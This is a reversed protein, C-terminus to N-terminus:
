KKNENRNREATKVSAAFIAILESSEKVDASILEPQLLPKYKIIKLCIGTERLEKLVVKMKHLFDDPSEAAQAEGYNFAPSTGCRVLQGSVHNGSRTKPLMESVEMMRIAFRILREELDYKKSESMKVNQM